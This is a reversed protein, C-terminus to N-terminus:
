HQQENADEPEELPLRQLVATVTRSTTRLEHLAGSLEGITKDKTQAVDRWTNREEKMDLYTRRPIFIGRVVMTVLMVGMAAAVAWGSVDGLQPLYETIMM